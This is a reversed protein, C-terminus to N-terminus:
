IPMCRSQNLLKITYTRSGHISNTHLTYRITMFLFPLQQPTSLELIFNFYTAVHPLHLCPIFHGRVSYPPPSLFALTIILVFV